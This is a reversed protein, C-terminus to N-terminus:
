RLDAVSRRVTVFGANEFRRKMPASKRMSQSQILWDIVCNVQESVNFNYSTLNAEMAEYSDDFGMVSIDDPVSYSLEKLVALCQTALMDDDCVIASFEKQAAIDAIIDRYSEKLLNRIRTQKVFAIFANRMNQRQFVDFSFREATENIANSLPNIARDFDPMDSSQWLERGSQARIGPVDWFHVAGKRGAADYVHQIGRHRNLSWAQAPVSSLFAIRRHGRQYLFKGAKVGPAISEETSLHVISKRFPYKKFADTIGPTGLLVLPADLKARVMDLLTEIGRTIGLSIVISGLPGDSPMRYFATRDENSIFELKTEVYYVKFVRPTVNRLSCIQQLNAITRETDASPPGSKMTRVFCLVENKNHREQLSLNITLNKNADLLGKSELLTIARRITRYNAHYVSQLQTFPPIRDTREFTHSLLDDLLQEAITESRTVSTAQLPDAPLVVSGTLLAESIFVGIGKRSTLFGAKVYTDVVKQITRTSVGAESAFARVSPLRPDSKRLGEKIADHILSSIVSSIM